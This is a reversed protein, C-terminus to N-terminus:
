LCLIKGNANLLYKLDECVDEAIIIDFPSFNELKKQDREVYCGMKYFLYAYYPDRQFIIWSKDKLVRTDSLNAVLVKGELDELKRLQEESLRVPPKIKHCNANSSVFRNFIEVASLQDVNKRGEFLASSLREDIMYVEKDFEIHLKEAFKIAKFTQQSYRGSMSLPLGVIFCDIDKIFRSIESFVKQRSVTWIKTPLKHGLALGCRSEGYDIALIM